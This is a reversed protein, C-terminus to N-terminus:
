PTVTIYNTKTESDAGVLTVVSLYVSYSGAANYVHSPNQLNSSGGDGFTWLWSLIPSTGPDSLDTFNVMQGITANRPAASFSATPGVPQVDIYDIKTETDSAGNSNTVTLSVTFQGVNTYTHMPNQATSTATDGFTWFWSEIDKAKDGAFSMDTFSVPTNAPPNTPEGIFDADPGEAAEVTIYNQRVATDMNDISAVTLTVSYTGPNKYKHKPNQLTSQKGDGFTWKWSIIPNEGPAVASEDTFQVNENVTVLLPAASFDAVLLATATVPVLQDAVGPASIVVNAFNPGAAMKTRDVTVTFKAADEPGTSNGTKPDVDLWDTGGNDVTFEPLPQQTYNKAVKLTLSDTDKGFDLSEPTFLFVPLYNPPTYPPCGMGSALVIGLVVPWALIRLPRLM